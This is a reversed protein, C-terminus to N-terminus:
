VKWVTSNEWELLMNQTAEIHFFFLYFFSKSAAASSSPYGAYNQGSKREVLRVPAGPSEPFNCPEGTHLKFGYNDVM